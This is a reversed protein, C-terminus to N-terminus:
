KQLKNDGNNHQGIIGDFLFLGFRRLNQERKMM